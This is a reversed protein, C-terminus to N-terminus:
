PGLGFMEAYAWAFVDRFEKLLELLERKLYGLLRGSLFIPQAVNREEELNM